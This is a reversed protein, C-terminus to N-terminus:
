RCEVEWQAPRRFLRRAELISTGRVEVAGPDTAGLGRAQAVRLYELENIRFGMVAAGVADVAVCDAGAILVNHRVSLDADGEVAWPGGILAYADPRLSYLDCILEPLPGLAHLGFKPFGYVSGPAIGFFNKMSLSVGAGKNTKLPSLSIFRDCDRIARPVAYVRGSARFAVTEAFNLDLLAAGTERAIAAYSLGGFQGDWDTTWGDVPAPRWGGAGEAITVRCGRNVLWEVLTRVIRLDTVAGPGYQPSLGPCCVINPKVIVRDGRGAEPPGALELARLTMAEVEGPRPEASPANSRVIAVAPPNQM